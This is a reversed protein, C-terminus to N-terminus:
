DDFDIAEFEERWKAVISRLEDLRERPVMVTTRHFGRKAIRQRWRAHRDTPEGAIAREIPTPPKAM